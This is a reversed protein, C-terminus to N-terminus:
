NKAVGGKCMKGGPQPLENPFHFQALRKKEEWRGCITGKKGSIKKISPTFTGIKRVIV